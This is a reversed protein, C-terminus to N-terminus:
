KQSAKFLRLKEEKTLSEYGSKNIKDLIADVEEEDPLNDDTATTGISFQKTVSQKHVVKMVAKPPRKKFLNTFFDTVAEVPTGLDTGGQLQKIYFYGFFAGGLHVIEGGANSGIVGALSLILFFFAIYKIRVPGIFLISFTYDPVLTAAAFLVAMVSGSAGVGLINQHTYYPITNFALVTLLAGSIAGLVYLSVLRKSGIFEQIIGGFWYLLLMNYLLHFPDQIAHFFAYSLLTWPHFAVQLIHPSLGLYEFVIQFVGDLHSFKLSIFLILTILYAAVNIWILKMLGNNPKNFSERFDAFISM